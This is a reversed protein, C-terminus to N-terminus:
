KEVPIPQMYVAYMCVCCSWSQFFPALFYFLAGCLPLICWCFFFDVLHMVKIKPCIKQVDQLHLHWLNVMWLAWFLHTHGQQTDTLVTCVATWWWPQFASVWYSRPSGTDTLIFFLPCACSKQGICALLLASQHCHNVLNSVYMHGRNGRQLSCLLILINLNRLVQRRFCPAAFICFLSSIYLCVGCFM